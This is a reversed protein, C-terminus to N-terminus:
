CTLTIAPKTASGKPLQRSARSLRLWMACRSATCWSLGSPRSTNGQRARLRRTTRRLAMVRWGIAGNADVADMVFRGAQQEREGMPCHQRVGGHRDKNVYLDATGGKGPVFQRRVVVRLSLGSLARRKAGTGTPGRMRSNVNKALHDVGIVVVEARALPKLVKTHAHTFDDASNSDAGMLPLLEGISDIVAVAPRWAICDEVVTLMDLASDIDDYYRFVNPDSLKDKAAGLELLLPVIADVGNHDLDIILVTRGDRLAEACAALVIITKGSEPDGYAM